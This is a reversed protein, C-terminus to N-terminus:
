KGDKVTEYNIDEIEIEGRYKEYMKRIEEEKNKLPKGGIVTPDDTPEIGQPIIEEWPLEQADEKDLKNYKALKDIAMIREMLKKPGANKAEEIAAKLEENVLYRIWEKGANRVNGLLIRVNSIDIYAQTQSLGFETMLYDRLVKDQISPNELCETFCFRYRKLQNRESPLLHKKEDFDDFLVERYKDLAPKRPM